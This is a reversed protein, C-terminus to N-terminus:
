GENMFLNEDEVQLPPLVANKRQENLLKLASSKNLNAFPGGSRRLGKNQLLAQQEEKPLFKSYDSNSEEAIRRKNRQEELLKRRYEEVINSPPFKVENSYPQYRLKKRLSDPMIFKTTRM